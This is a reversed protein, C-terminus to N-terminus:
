SIAKESPLDWWKFLFICQKKESSKTCGPRETWLTQQPLSFHTPVRAQIHLTHTHACKGEAKMVLSLHAHYLHPLPRSPFVEQPDPSTWSWPRLQLAPACPHPLAGQRVKGGPIRAGVSVNWADEGLASGPTHPQEHWALFNRGYTESENVGM